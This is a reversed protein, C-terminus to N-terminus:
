NKTYVIFVGAMADIPYNNPNEYTSTLRFSQGAEVPYGEIDFYLPMGSTHGSGDERVLGNWVQKQAAVDYLEISKAYPHIHAGMVHIRGQFPLTFSTEQQHRGPRVYFLHPTSVSELVSYVAQMPKRVEADRIVHVRAEMSVRADDDTRNNFMPMWEVEEGSGLHIGFGDPLRVSRTFADSFLGKMEPVIASGDPRVLQEVHATGFFTHCLYNEAPPRGGEDYIETEYAIIWVPEAFRIHVMSGGDHFALAHSNVFALSPTKLRVSRVPGYESKLQSSEFDSIVDSAMLHFGFMSWAAIGVLVRIGNFTPM